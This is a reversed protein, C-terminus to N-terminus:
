LNQQLIFKHYDLLNKEVNGRAREFCSNHLRESDLFSHAKITETLMTTPFSNQYSPFESAAFLQVAVFRYTFSFWERCQM